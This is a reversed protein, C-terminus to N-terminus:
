GFALVEQALRKAAIECYREEIEIGIAKRNLDKAARLTTGSGMFPDFIMEGPMSVRNVLWRVVTLPKPCPHGNEETANNWSVGNPRSGMGLALFPDKGYYFIPHSCNFGWSSMGAGAPSWIVGVDNPEPYDWMCRVGPTLAGRGVRELLVVVVPVVVERVYEPGDDFQGGYEGPRAGHKSTRAKLGVGYPPDTVFADCSISLFDRCDGHYIVCSGDDYYPTM